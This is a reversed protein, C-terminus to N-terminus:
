HEINGVGWRERQFQKPDVGHVVLFERRFNQPNSFGLMVSVEQSSRSGTLMRRAVVMREGRMWEKPPLGIDRTFVHHFYREGCGLERCLEDIRYGCRLALRELCATRRSKKLCVQWALGARAIRM